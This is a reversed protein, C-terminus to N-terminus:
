QKIFVDQKYNFFTETQKKRSWGTNDLNVNNDLYVNFTMKVYSLALLVSRKVPM